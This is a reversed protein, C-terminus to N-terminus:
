RLKKPWTCKNGGKYPYDFAQYPTSNYQRDIKWATGGKDMVYMPMKTHDVTTSDHGSAPGGMDNSQAIAVYPHDTDGPFQKTLVKGVGNVVASDPCGYITDKALTVHDHYTAYPTAGPVPAASTDYSSVPFHYACANSNPDEYPVTMFGGGNPLKWVVGGSEHKWGKPNSANWGARSSSDANSTDLVARLSERLNFDNTSDNLATDAPSLLCQITVSSTQEWGGVFVKATMRGSEPPRYTCLLTTTCGPGKGNGTLVPDRTSDAGIWQWLTVHFPHASRVGGVTISDPTFSARFNIPNTHGTDLTAASALLKKALTVPVARLRLNQQGAVTSHCTANGWPDCDYSWQKPGQVRRVTVTGVLMTTDIKQTAGCAGFSTTYIAPGYVQLALACKTPDDIRQDDIGTASL